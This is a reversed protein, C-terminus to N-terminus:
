AEAWRDLAALSGDFVDERRLVATLAPRVSRLEPGDGPGPTWSTDLVVYDTAPRPRRADAARDVFALTRGSVEGDAPDRPRPPSARPFDAMPGRRGARPAEGPDGDLGGAIPGADRRPRGSRTM